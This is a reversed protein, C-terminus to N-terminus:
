TWDQLKSREASGNQSALTATIRQISRFDELNMEDFSIHVNFHRELQFLLEVLQLSDLVGTEFLDAEYSPVELHLKLSFIEAVVNEITQRDHM